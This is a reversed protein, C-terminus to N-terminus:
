EDGGEETAITIDAIAGAPMEVLMAGDSLRPYIPIIRDGSIKAIQTKFKSSDSSQIGRRDLSIIPQGNDSIEIVEASDSFWPKGTSVFMRQEDQPDSLRVHELEIHVRDGPTLKNITTEVEDPTEITETM